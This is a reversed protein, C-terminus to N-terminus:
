GPTLKCQEVMDAPDESEPLILARPDDEEAVAALGAGAAADQEEVVVRFGV